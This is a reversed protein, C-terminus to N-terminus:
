KPCVPVVNNYSGNYYTMTIAAWVTNHLISNVSYFMRSRIHYLTFWRQDRPTNHTTHAVAAHCAGNMKHSLHSMLIDNWSSEQRHEAIRTSYKWMEVYKWM